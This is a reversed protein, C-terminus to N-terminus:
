RRETPVLRSLEDFWNLVVNLQQQGSRVSDEGRQIMVFRRGDPAVDYNACFGSSDLEFPGEFLLVPKSPTFVSETSIAVSLMKEGQRYFLEKGNPAWVPETGGDTSILRKGGPEPFSCVYVERRGSEDSTFALWRGDPSLRPYQENFPTGLLIESENEGDLRLMGIDSGSRSVNEAVMFVLIKGDPSWYGPITVKEIQTLQIANGSGDASKQFINWQGARSSSFTVARGDPTWIPTSNSGEFTLRTLTDRATELV